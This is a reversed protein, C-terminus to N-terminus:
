PPADPLEVSAAAYASELWRRAAEVRGDADALWDGETRAGAVLSLAVAAARARLAVPDVGAGLRTVWRLLQGPVHRHVDPAVAPLVSVHGLLCALDDVRHGPGLSDVDLLGVLRGGDMLLNAEHLDGHTPVVPGPDTARVLRDIAAGLALIEEPRTPHAAAAALAHHTVREAWSPRRPLALTAAPLQDLVDLVVVPDVQAAGDTAFAETLPVGPLADLVLVGGGLDRLPAVPLGAARLVAHREVLGEATHPRVVKVYSTAPGSPATAAVRLVARRLPRYTLLELGTVQVGLLASLSLPSTATALGPLVPDAPHRWVRVTRGGAQVDLLAASPPVPATTGLLYDEAVVTGARWRVPWGVTVGVGPRHHVRHTSWEVLEVGESALVAHLLGGADAGTLLALDAQEVDAQVLDPHQPDPQGPDPQGPDRPVPPRVTSLGSSPVTPTLMGTLSVM